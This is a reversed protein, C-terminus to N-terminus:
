IQKLVGGILLWWSSKVFSRSRPFAMSAAFHHCIQRSCFMRRLKAKLREGFDIWTISCYTQCNSSMDYFKSRMELTTESQSIGLACILAGCTQSHLLKARLRQRPSQLLPINGSPLQLGKNYAENAVELSKTTDTVDGGESLVREVQEKASRLADGESSM